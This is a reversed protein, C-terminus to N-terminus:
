KGKKSSAVLLIVAVVAAIVIGQGYDNHDAAAILLGM